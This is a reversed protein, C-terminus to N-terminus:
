SKFVITVAVTEVLKWKCSNEWHVRPYHIVPTLLYSSTIILPACIESFFLPQNVAAPNLNGELYFNVILSIWFSNASIQGFEGTLHNSNLTRSSSIKRCFNGNRSDSQNNFFLSAFFRYGFQIKSPFSKAIHWLRKAFVLYVRRSAATITTEPLLLRYLSACYNKSFFFTFDNGGPGM